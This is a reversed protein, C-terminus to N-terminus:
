DRPTGRRLRIRAIEAPCNWRVPVPGTGIGRSTFGQMAGFRWVGSALRRHKVTATMIPRGCPLAIQGGHTHGTLYLAHGAAAAVDALEPSHVLAISFGPPRVTLACVAAETFFYHVDDTGTVHIADPGRRIEARENILVTVGRAELPEPLDHSDHNGLVALIGDRAELAELLPSLMLVTGAADPRGVTQIDGTFVVLDAPLNRVLGAAREIVGDGMGAHIDSLHLITYGDFAPPLTPCLFEIETLGLDRSAARGVGVLGLALGVTKALLLVPTSKRRPGRVTSAMRATEAVVRWRRWADRDQRGTVIVTTPPVAM